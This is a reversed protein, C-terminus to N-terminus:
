FLGFCATKLGFVCIVCAQSVLTKSSYTLCEKEEYYIVRLSCGECADRM